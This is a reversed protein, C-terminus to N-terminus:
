QGEYFNKSAIIKTGDAIIVTNKGTKGSKM